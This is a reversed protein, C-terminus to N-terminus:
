IRKLVLNESDRNMRKLYVDPEPCTELTGNEQIVHSRYGLGLLTKLANIHATNEREVSLYELIIVPSNVKLLQMAGNVIVSESGETDIKIYEPLINNEDTFHDLSTCRIKTMQKEAKRFWAQREYQTTDAADYESYQPEFSYFDVLEEREGAMFPHIHIGPRDRVNEELMEFSLPSPELAHVTAGCWAALRSYFGYHAGVDIFTDGAKLNLLLYLTLRLEADDSRGGTLYIDTGSPLGVNMTEGWFVNATVKKSVGTLPYLIMKQAMATCYRAPAHVYRQWRTGKALARTKEFSTIITASPLYETILICYKSKELRCDLSNM